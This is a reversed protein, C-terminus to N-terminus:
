APDGEKEIIENDFVISLRCIYGYMLKGTAFIEHIWYQLLGGFSGLVLCLTLGFTVQAVETDKLVWFCQCQLM